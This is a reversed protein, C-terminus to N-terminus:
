RKEVLQHRIPSPLMSLIQFQVPDIEREKEEREKQEKRFREIEANVSQLAAKLSGNEANAQERAAESQELAAELGEIQEKAERTAEGNELAEAEAAFDFLRTKIEGTNPRDAEPGGLANFLADIRSKLTKRAAM